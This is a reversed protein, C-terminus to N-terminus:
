PGQRPLRQAYGMYSARTDDGECFALRRGLEQFSMRGKARRRFNLLALLPNCRTVMGRVGRPVLGHRRLLGQLEQPKIFREWLHANRPVFATARWEQMVWIMAVKSALTRNITDYFFLGGPELVRAIEAVVRDVDDVHELVDCCAVADFAGDAFPLEEGSGTQYAISLGSEAAHAQAAEISEPAPDVGSVRLGLRAFEEALIGGGCGVDLLRLGRAARGRERDLVGKFYGFRVPNVFFRISSFEGVEDNWWAHGMRRYLDNDVVAPQM